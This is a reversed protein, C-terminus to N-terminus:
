DGTVAPDFSRCDPSPPTLILAEERGLGVWADGERLGDRIGMWAGTFWETEGDEALEMWLMLRVAHHPDDYTFDPARHRLVTDVHNNCLNTVCEPFSRLWEQRTM